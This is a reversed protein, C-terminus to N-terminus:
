LVELLYCFGDGVWEIYGMGGGFLYFGVIKFDDVVIWDLFVVCILVGLEIDQDLGSLWGLWMLVIYYNGIVDGIILVGELGDWIEFSMYGLIYGFIFVVQIGFLIEEGGLFFVVSDEIVELWCKVGVVMFVCVEGIINVMDLDWWYDFEVCGIMYIVEYFFFDDFEDFLGWIYDFYVYMFVVYIVDELVVDVMEFGEQLKGVLFQFDFGFGVDFLVINMGDWYLFVNCDLM